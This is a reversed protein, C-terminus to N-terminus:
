GQPTEAPTDTHPDPARSAAAAAAARRLLDMFEAQAVTPRWDARYTLGIGRANNQLPIPLPKLHGSAEEVSIQHRSIITVYPGQALLGRLFVLSSSVVRVPTINRDQLRLTEYLYGGAPTERPPAVWPFRLTDEVTPAPLDFLPHSPHAVLALPDDFLPEQVVDEAPVPDRLAGIICDLEGERLSRLLQPFRGDVVRIQMRGSRRVMADVARPVISTRALPLSGISFTGAQTGLARGIEEIGQRIEAQALKAGLVFAQAAATLEVGVATATFFTLGSLAELNRATRHITPQSVGIDRAAVTFSGANAISILARLQAATVLRDFGANRATAGGEGRGSKLAERAGRELHALAAGVRRAFAAGEPTPTLERTRRILLQTGLDKELGAIAQTAAPQSLHCRGAAVSVSGARVAEALVRMHRINPFDTTM